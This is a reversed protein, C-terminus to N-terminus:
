PPALVAHPRPNDFLIYEGIGDTMVLSTTRAGNKLRQIRAGKLERRYILLFISINVSEQGEHILINNATKMDISHQDLWVTQYCASHHFRGSKM